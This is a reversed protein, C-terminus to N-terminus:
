PIVGLSMFKDRGMRGTLIVQHPHPSAIDCDQSFGNTAERCYWLRYLMCLVILLYNLREVSLILSGLATDNKVKSSM